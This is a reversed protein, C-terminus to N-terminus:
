TPVCQGAIAEGERQQTSLHSLRVVLMAQQTRGSLGLQSETPSPALCTNLTSYQVTNLSIDARGMRETATYGVM